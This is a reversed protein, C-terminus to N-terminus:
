YALRTQQRLARALRVQQFVKYHVAMCAPQADGSDITVVV